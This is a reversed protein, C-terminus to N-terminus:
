SSDTGRHCWVGLDSGVYITWPSGIGMVLPRHESLRFSPIGEYIVNGVVYGAQNLTIWTDGGDLTAYVGGHGFIALIEPNEPHTTVAKVEGAQPFPIGGEPPAVIISWEKPDLANAKLLGKGAVAVYINPLNTSDIAFSNVRWKATADPVPTWSFGGDVSIYLGEEFQLDQTRGGSSYLYRIMPQGPVPLVAQISGVQKSIQRWTKGNDGTRYLSDGTGAYLFESSLAISRVGDPSKILTWSKGSDSSGWIESKFQTYIIRSDLPHVAINRLVGPGSGLYNEPLQWTRGGDTSGYVAGGGGAYMVTGDKSAGIVAMFEAWSNIPDDSRHGPRWPYNLLESLDPPVPTSAPAQTAQPPATPSPSPTHTLVLMMTPSSSPILTAVVVPTEAAIVTVYVAPNQPLACYRVGLITSISAATAVLVIFIVLGMLRYGPM